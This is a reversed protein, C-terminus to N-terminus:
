RFPSTGCSGGSSGAGSSSLAGAPVSAAFLSPKLELGKSGCKECEVEAIADYSSVLDEFEHGCKRCRLDYLPM